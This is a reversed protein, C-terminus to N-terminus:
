GVWTNLMLCLTLLAVVGWCVEASSINTNQQKQMAVEQIDRHV